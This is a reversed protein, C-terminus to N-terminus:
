SGLIRRFPAMAYKRPRHQRFLKILIGFYIVQSIKPHHQFTTIRSGAGGFGVTIDSPHISLPSGTYFLVTQFTDNVNTRNVIEAQADRTRFVGRDSGILLSSQDASYAFSRYDGFKWTGDGDRHAIQGTLLPSGSAEM